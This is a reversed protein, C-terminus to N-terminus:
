LGPSRGSDSQYAVGGLMATYIAEMRRVSAELTFSRIFTGAGAALNCRLADNRMLLALATALAQPQGAPFLLGTREHAVLEPNGGVRSAVMACGCAMAEMLSNSLAESLSHLVFIDSARLWAAVDSTGPEFVCDEAM